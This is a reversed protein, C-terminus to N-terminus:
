LLAKRKDVGFDVRNQVLTHPFVLAGLITMARRRGFREPKLNLHKM